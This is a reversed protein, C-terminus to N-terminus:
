VFVLFFWLFIFGISIKFYDYCNRGRYVVWYFVVRNGWEEDRLNVDIKGGRIFSGLEEFKIDDGLVCM